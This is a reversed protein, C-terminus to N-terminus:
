AATGDFMLTISIILSSSLLIGLNEVKKEALTSSNTKRASVHLDAKKDDSSSSTSGSM